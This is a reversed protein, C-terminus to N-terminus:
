LNKGTKEGVLVMRKEDYHYYDDTLDTIHLWGDITNPLEVFFGFNTVSSIIGNLNRVLKNKWLSRLKMDDVEREIMIAERERASTQLAIEPMLEQYHMITRRDLRNEFMYKRILRHVILDPYRRIPSTFHTYYEDALGFHGLCQEDYRAKQM